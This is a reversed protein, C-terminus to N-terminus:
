ILAAGCSVAGVAAKSSVAGNMRRMTFTATTM